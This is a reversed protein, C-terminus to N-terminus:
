AMWRKIMGDAEAARRYFTPRSLGAWKCKQNQDSTYTVRHVQRWKDLHNLLFVDFHRRPLMMVLRNFALAHGEFIVPKPDDSGREDQKAQQMLIAIQSVHGKPLWSRGRCWLMWNAIHWDFDTM